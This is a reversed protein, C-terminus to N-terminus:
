SHCPFLNYLSYLLNAYDECLVASVISFYNNRCIIIQRQIHIINRRRVLTQKCREQITFNTSTLIVCFENNGRHCGVKPWGASSQSFGHRYNSMSRVNYRRRNKVNFNAVNYRRRNKVNFNAVNVIKPQRRRSTSEVLVCRQFLM